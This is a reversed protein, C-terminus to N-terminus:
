CSPEELLPLLQRLLDPDFGSALRIVRGSGLVVEIAATAAPPTAVIQVPVFAAQDAARRRDPCRSAPRASAAEQDRQAITRRWAYFSPESLHNHDCYQRVSLGSRRWRRVMRRWFREKASSPQRQRAM